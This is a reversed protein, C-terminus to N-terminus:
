ATNIIDNKHLMYREHYLRSFKIENNEPNANKLQIDGVVNKGVDTLPGSQNIPYSM